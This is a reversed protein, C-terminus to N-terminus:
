SSTPCLLNVARLWSLCDPQFLHPTTSHRTSDQALQCVIGRSQSQGPQCPSSTDHETDRHPKSRQDHYNVGGKGGKAKERWDSQMVWYKVRVLLLWSCISVERVWCKGCPQLVPCVWSPPVPLSDQDCDIDTAISVVSIPAPVTYDEKDGTIVCDQSCSVCQKRCMPAYAVM